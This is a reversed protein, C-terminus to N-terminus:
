SFSAFYGAMCLYIPLNLLTFIQIYSSTAISMLHACVVTKKMVTTGVIMMTIVSMMSMSATDMTVPSSTHVVAM